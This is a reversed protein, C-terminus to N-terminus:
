LLGSILTAASGAASTLSSFASQGKYDGLGLRSLNDSETPSADVDRLNYGRIKISYNYLMPNDASRNLTFSQIVADYKVGDKYNVFQLPHQKRQTSNQGAADKKYQLLFRYFNHFAMYGTEEPSVGTNMKVGDGLANSIDSAIDKIQNITNTVEPLFGGFDLGGNNFSERGESNAQSETGAKSDKTGAEKKLIWKPSIGTTGSITIDYYRIESHEEVVGYMTTVVNTAFQTVVNINSPLIPLYITSTPTTGGADRNYFTFGYPLSKYWNSATVSYISDLSNSESAGEKSGSKKSLPNPIPM